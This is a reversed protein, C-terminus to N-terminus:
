FAQTAVWNEGPNHSDSYIICTDKTLDSTLLKNPIISPFLKIEKFIKFLDTKM